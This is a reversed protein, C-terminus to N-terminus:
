EIRLGPLAPFKSVQQTSQQHHRPGLSNRSPADLKLTDFLSDNTDLATGSTDKQLQNHKLNHNITGM